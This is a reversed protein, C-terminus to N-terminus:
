AQAKGPAVSAEVPAVLIFRALGWAFLAAVGFRITILLLGNAGVATFLITEEILAHCIGLFVTMVTLQDRSLKGEEASQIIVGAGYTLGITLGAVMPLGAAGPLRLPRLIPAMWRSAKELWGSDKLLQILVFLPLLWWLSAVKMVGAVLGEWVWSLWM